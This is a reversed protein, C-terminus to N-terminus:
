ISEKTMWIGLAGDDRICEDRIPVSGVTSGAGSTAEDMVSAETWAVEPWEM